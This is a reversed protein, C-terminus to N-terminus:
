GAIDPSIKRYSCVTKDGAVTEGLLHVSGAHRNSKKERDGRESRGAKAIENGYADGRRVIVLGEDGRREKELSIRV